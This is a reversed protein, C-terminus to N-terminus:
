QPTSTPELHQRASPDGFQLLIPADAATGDRLKAYVTLQSRLLDDLLQAQSAITSLRSALKSQSELFIRQKSLNTRLEREASSALQKLRDAELQSAKAYIHLRDQLPHLLKKDLPVMLDPLDESNAFIRWRLATQRGPAAQAQIVLRVKPSESDSDSLLWTTIQGDTIAQAEAPSLEFEDDVSLMIQWVPQRPRVKIRAAVKYLQVMPFTTLVLPESVTSEDKSDPLELDTEVENKAASQTLVELEQMLDREPLDSSVKSQASNGQSSDAENGPREIVSTHEGITSSQFSELEKGKGSITTSALNPLSIQPVNPTTTEFEDLQPVIPLTALSESDDLDASDSNRMDRGRRELKDSAIVTPKPSRPKASEAQGKDVGWLLFGGAIVLASVVSAALIKHQKVIAFVQVAITARSRRSRSQSGIPKSPFPEEESEVQATDVQLSPKARRSVEAFGRICGRTQKRLESEVDSHLTATDFALIRGQAWGLLEQLREHPSYQQWESPFVLKGSDSVEIRQWDLVALREEVSQLREAFQMRIQWAWDLCVERPPIGLEDLWIAASAM